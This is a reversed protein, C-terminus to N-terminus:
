NPLLEPFFKVCVTVGSSRWSGWISVVSPASEMCSQAQSRAKTSSVWIWWASVLQSSFWRSVTACRSTGCLQPCLWTTSWSSWSTGVSDMKQFCCSVARWTRQTKAVISTTWTCVCEPLPARSPSSGTMQLWIKWCMMSHSRSCSPPWSPTSSPRWPVSKFCFGASSFTLLSTFLFFQVDCEPHLFWRSM